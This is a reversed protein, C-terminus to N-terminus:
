SFLERGYPLAPIAGRRTVCVAAAACGYAMYEALTNDPLNAAPINGASLKYLFAGWFADGAGTTDVAAVKEAPVAVFGSSKSKGVAGKDGLTVVACSVGATFLAEIASVPEDFGTVLAAEEGSIKVVDALPLVAATQTTFDKPNNWLMARYNPDFATVVRSARAAQAAMVTATRAPENTLSLSGFHFVKSAKIINVDVEGANICTDAGPKRAFAFSREGTNTLSVFALTTFVGPDSILGSVDVGEKSLTDRLFAGHSDDGVKGIFAAKGGLRAVACAVNAPAGGPNREYLSMGGESIGYQTFDILVEGFATVDFM